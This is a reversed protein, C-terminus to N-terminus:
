NLLMMFGLHFIPRDTFFVFDSGSQEVNREVPIPRTVNKGGVIKNDYNEYQFLNLNGQVAVRELLFYNLGLTLGAYLNRERYELREIEGYPPTISNEIASENCSPCVLSVYDTTFVGKGQEFLGFVTTQLEFREGLRFFKSIFPGTGWLLNDTEFKYEETAGIEFHYSAMEQVNQSRIMGMIGITMHDNVMIGGKNMWEWNTNHYSNELVRNKDSRSIPSFGTSFTWQPAQALVEFVFLSVLTFTILIKKM